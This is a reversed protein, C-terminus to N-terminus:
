PTAYGITLANQNFGAHNGATLSTVTVKLTGAGAYVDGPVAVTATANWGVGPANTYAVHPRYPNALTTTVSITTMGTVVVRIGTAYGSGWYPAASLASFNLYVTGGLATQLESTPITWSAYQGSGYGIWYWDAMAPANHNGSSAFSSPAIANNAYGPALSAYVSAGGAALLGVGIVAVLCWRTRKSM